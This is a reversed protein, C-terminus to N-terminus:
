VEQGKTKSRDERAKFLGEDLRELHEQFSSGMVIIDDLYVLLPSYRLGKLVLDMCRKFTAPANCFGMPLVVYEYQGHRSVFSTKCRDEEKLEM